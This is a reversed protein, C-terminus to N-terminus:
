GGGIAAIKMNNKEAFYRDCVKCGKSSGFCDICSKPPLATNNDTVFYISAITKEPIMIGSERVDVGILGSELLACIAHTAKTSMGYYGPGFPDSLFSASDMDAMLKKEMMGKASDVYATGWTDLYVREKTSDGFSWNGATVVTM